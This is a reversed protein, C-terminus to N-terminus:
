AQRRFKRLEELHERQGPTMEQGNIGKPADKGGPEFLGQYGCATSHELVALFRVPGKERGKTLQQRAATPTLPKKSEKRHQAWKGWAAKVAPVSALDPFEEDLLAIADFGARKRAKQTDQETKDQETRNLCQTPMAGANSPSHEPMARADKEARYREWRENAAKRGHKSRDGAVDREVELRENQLRDDVEQFCPSVQPWLRALDPWRGRPLIRELTGLDSPISGHKWQRWLLWLYLSVAADEMGAVRESEWFDDGHFSFWPRPDNM